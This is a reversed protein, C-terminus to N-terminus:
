ITTNNKEFSAFLLYKLSYQQIGTLAKDTKTIGRLSNSAVYSRMRKTLPIQKQKLEINPM